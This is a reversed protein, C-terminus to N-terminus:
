RCGHDAVGGDVRRCALIVGRGLDIVRGGAQACAHRSSEGVTRHEVDVIVGDGELGARRRRGACRGVAVADAAVDGGVAIAVRDDIETGACGARGCGDAVDEGRDVDGAADLAGNKVARTRRGDGVVGALGRRRDGGAFDRQFGRRTGIERDDALSIRELRKPRVVAVPAPLAVTLAVRVELPALRPASIVSPEDSVTLPWM